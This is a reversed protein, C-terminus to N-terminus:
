ERGDDPADAGSRKEVERSSRMMTTVGAAFGLLTFIVMFWPQTGFVTDLGWGMAFGVGLGAVLETVMRWALQAQSHHEEVPAAPTERAKKAADLRAELEEMRRKDAPDIAM